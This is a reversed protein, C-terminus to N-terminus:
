PELLLVLLYSLQLTVQRCLNGYEYRLFNLLNFDVRVFRHHNPPPVTTQIAAYVRPETKNGTSKQFKGGCKEIGGFKMTDAM